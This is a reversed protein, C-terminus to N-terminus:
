RLTPLLNGFWILGAGLAALLIATVVYAMTSHQVELADLKSEPRGLVAVVHTDALLQGPAVIAGRSSSWPGHVSAEVGVPLVVEEIEYGEPNDLGERKWDKRTEGDDDLLTARVQEFASGLAGAVSASLPEFTTDRLFARARALADDGGPASVPCDLRPVAVVPM